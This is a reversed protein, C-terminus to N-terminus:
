KIKKCICKKKTSIFTIFYRCLLLITLYKHKNLWELYKVPQEYEVCLIKYLM